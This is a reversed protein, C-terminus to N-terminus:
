HIVGDKDEPIATITDLLRELDYRGYAVGAYLSDRILYDMRDADLEGAVISQLLVGM